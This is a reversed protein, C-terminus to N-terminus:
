TRRLVGAVRGIVHMEGDVAVEAEVLPNDSKLRYTGDPQAWVRKITGFGGYALAWIKDQGNIHRVSRDILVVDGHKITPDMSDGDGRAFTLQSEHTDTFMRVWSRPFWQAVTHVASEDLFTAGMGLSLDIEEISVLDLQDAIEDRTPAPVAGEDPDDTQGTLFAATTRLHQAILHLHSSSAAEGRALKGISQPAVGVKRALSSQTEGVQAMRAIMRDPILM